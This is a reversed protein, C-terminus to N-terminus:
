APEGDPRDAAIEPGPTAHGLLKRVVRLLMARDHPKTIYEDVGADFGRVRDIREGMSTVMVIPTAAYEPMARLARTLDYGDLKPMVVDTSVLDFPRTRALELGHQGDIAVTVLYGAETLLRRLSERVIDSDEVLLIHGGAARPQAAPPRRPAVPRDLARRLIAPVDLILAVRDGLLTAGATCPVNALLPGLSKIVIERKGILHDCVLGYRQGAHEVLVLQLVGDSAGDLELVADLRILPVHHGRVVAVERDGIREIERPDIALVRRVIDLPIAFTEGGARAVIVQIIALTLPLKLVFASGQGPTSQVEITGKLRSVIAQRVIDMGVGRGSVETVQAATSFGPRFILERAARDDLAEAEAATVLGREVARKRLKDPDLGRGDDTVRIEVQNGRHAASLRIAGEAPKGAAARADPAEIGHDVANRVLHVLPEDLAEVLLKDLETDEGELELRARKGLGAALDRVTRVHKRFVGAVSIMRLRMVQERLEGSIADLRGTGQDLDTAVDALVREIRSLEDGLHDLGASRFGGRAVRRAVGRETALESTISGLAHVASRLGDRGLLLEGVLNLLRDLKDFDVRITQRAADAASRGAGTAVGAAADALAATTESAGHAAGTRVVPTGPNRLRVIVPAPDIALAAGARAQALMDRLVDLAALLADIVPGDVARGADRIQGVLDEAAHALQNVPALGVMASSGKITHLDRFVDGVLEADGPRREIEMLKGALAAIRDTAEDFFLEIMDDDVAPEWAFATVPGASVGSPGTATSPDAITAPSGFAAPGTTTDLARRLEELPLDEVRAGSRDANALQSFADRLTSIAADLEPTVGPSGEGAPRDVTRDIAHEIALALRGVDEAGLLLSSLGIRFALQGLAALRTADGTTESLSAADALATADAGARLVYDDWLAAATAGPPGTTTM